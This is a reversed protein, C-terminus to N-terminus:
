LEINFTFTIDDNLYQHTVMSYIDKTITIQYSGSGLNNFKYKTLDTKATGNTVIDTEILVNDKKIFIFQNLLNKDVPESFQMEFLNSPLTENNNINFECYFKYLKPKETNDIYKDVIEGLTFFQPMTEQFDRLFANQNFNVSIRNKEKELDSEQMIEVSNFDLLKQIKYIKNQYYAKDAFQNQSVFFCNWGIPHVIPKIIYEFENDDLNATILYNFAGTEYVNVEIASDPLNYKMKLYFSIIFEFFSRTGKYIKIKDYVRFFTKKLEKISELRNIFEEQTESLNNFESKSNIEEFYTQLEPYKEKIYLNFLVFTDDLKSQESTKVTKQQNYDFKTINFFNEDIALGDILKDLNLYDSFSLIKNQFDSLM